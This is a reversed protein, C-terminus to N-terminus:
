VFVNFEALDDPEIPVYSWDFYFIKESKPESFRKYKEQCYDMMLKWRKNNSAPQGSGSLQPLYPRLQLFADEDELRLLQALSYNVNIISKRRLIVDDDAADAAETKVIVAAHKPSYLLAMFAQEVTHKKNKLSIGGFVSLGCMLTKSYSLFMKMSYIFFMGCLYRMRLRESLGDTLIEVDPVPQLGLRIRIQIWHESLKSKFGLKKIIEQFTKKGAISDLEPNELLFPWIDDIQEQFLQPGIGKLQRIRQQFHTLRKYGPSIPKTNM